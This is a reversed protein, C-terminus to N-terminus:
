TLFCQRAVQCIDNLSSANYHTIYPYPGYETSQTTSNYTMCFGFFLLKFDVGCKVETFLSQCSCRTTSRNDPIFWLPCVDQQASIQVHVTVLCLVLLYSWILRM